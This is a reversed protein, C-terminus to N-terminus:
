KLLNLIQYTVTTLGNKPKLKYANNDFEFKAVPNQLWQDIQKTLLSLKPIYLGAQNNVIFSVNAKEQEWIYYYILPSKKLSCAEQLLAPGAKCVLIDSLSILQKIGTTFGLIKIRDQMQIPLTKCFTELKQKLDQNRGCVIVFNAITKIKLVNQLLLIGKPMSAGGGILLITPLNQNVFSLEQKKNVLEEKTPLLEFDQNFFPDFLTVSAQKKTNILIQEKISNNFVFYNGSTDYFWIPAAWFLETVMTIIKAKPIFESALKGAFFYTSVLLDPKLDNIKKALFKKHGFSFLHYSVFRGIKTKWIVSLLYWVWTLKETLLIYGQDYLWASLKSSGGLDILEVKVNSNYSNLSAQLAKAASQHGGGSKTYAILILKTRM